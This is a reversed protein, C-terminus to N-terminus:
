NEYSEIEIIRSYSALANNVLVRIKSTTIPSFTFKSKVKNNGIVSGGPVTVWAAGNWYQVDFATIGYLSFTMADTPEVPSSYNDQITFVDIESITKSGNFDIQVWDPYV